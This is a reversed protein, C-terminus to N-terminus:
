GVDIGTAYRLAYYSTLLRYSAQIFIQKAQTRSAVVDRYELPTIMGLDRRAKAQDIAEDALLVGEHAAYYSLLAEEIEYIADRVEAKAEEVTSIM